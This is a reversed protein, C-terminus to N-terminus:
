YESFHLNFPGVLAPQAAGRLFLLAQSAARPACGRGQAPCAWWAIAAESAQGLSSFRRKSLGSDGEQHHGPLLSLPPRWFDWGGPAM